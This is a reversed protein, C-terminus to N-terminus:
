LVLHYRSRVIKELDVNAITMVHVGSNVLVELLVDANSGNLSATSLLVGQTIKCSPSRM